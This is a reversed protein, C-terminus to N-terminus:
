LPRILLAFTAIGDGLAYPVAVLIAELLCTVAFGNLTAPKESGFLAYATGGLGIGLLAVALIIGFTFVTGGLLPGLMRYWVLEMLFFVFGVVAAAVPVYWSPLGESLAPAAARDPRREPASPRAVRTTAIAAVAKKAAPTAPVSEAGANVAAAAVPPSAEPTPTDTAISTVVATDMAI